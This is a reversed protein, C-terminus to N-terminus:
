PVQGALIRLREAIIHIERMSDPNKYYKDLEKDQLGNKAFEDRIGIVLPTFKSSYERVKDRFYDFLRNIDAEMATITPQPPKKSECDILFKDIESSLDETRDRLSVQGNAHIVRTKITMIATNQFTISAQSPPIEQYQRFIYSVRFLLRDLRENQDTMSKNLNTITGNLETIKYDSRVKSDNNLINQWILLGICLVAFSGFIIKQSKNKASVYGGFAAMGVMLVALTISIILQM